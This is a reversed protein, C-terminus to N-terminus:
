RCLKAAIRYGNYGGYYRLGRAIFPIDQETIERRPDSSWFCQAFYEKFAKRAIELRRDRDLNESNNM